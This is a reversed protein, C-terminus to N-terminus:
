GYICYKQLMYAVQEKAARGNGTIAKKIKLPCVSSLCMEQIAAAMAVGQVRGLKLM